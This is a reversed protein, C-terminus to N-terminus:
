VQCSHSKSLFMNTDETKEIKVLPSRLNFDPSVAGSTNTTNGRGESVSHALYNEVNDAKKRTLEERKRDQYLTSPVLQIWSKIFASEGM